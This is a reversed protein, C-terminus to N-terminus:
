MQWCQHIHCVYNAKPLKCNRWEYDTLCHISAPKQLQSCLEISRGMIYLSIYFTPFNKSDKSGNGAPPCSIYREEGVKGGM